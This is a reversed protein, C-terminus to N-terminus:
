SYSCFFLRTNPLVLSSLLTETVFHRIYDNQFKKYEETVHLQSMYCFKHCWTVNYLTISIRIKLEFYSIFIFHFYFHSFFYFYIFDVIKSELM